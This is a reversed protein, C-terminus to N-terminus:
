PTAKEMEGSIAEVLRRAHSSASVVKAADIQGLLAFSDQGKAYRGKRSQRTSERLAKEIDAKAIDEVDRQPAPLANASFGSGFYRDLCDRDALFWSEMVQVMLHANRDTAGGPREWGDRQKLHTWPTDNVPGEGDVLLVVFHSAREAIATCFRDYAQERSGCAVVAPMREAFGAKRFFASFGQRCAQRLTRGNGGGEVYVRAKM